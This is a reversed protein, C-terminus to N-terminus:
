KWFNAIQPFIIDGGSIVKDFLISNAFVFIKKKDSDTNTM